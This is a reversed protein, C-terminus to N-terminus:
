KQWTKKLKEVIDNFEEDSYFALTIKGKGMNYDIGVKTGVLRQLELAAAEALRVKTKEKSDLNDISENPEKQMGQLIKELARVSLKNALVKKALQHQTKPDSVSLLVKAHGVTIEQQSLMERVSSPLSLLRMSNAVTAREKSVKEAIQQQTLKFEDALRQYAEAEDIPNLDERQINEIIALELSDQDNVSKILVPVEHLGAIQAARWRREGSIIELTGNLHRRAIIPQLIGKDKISAALEALTDKNFKQRPQYENPNLKDVAIKWVRAEPPVSAAAPGSVTPNISTSSVQPALPNVTTSNAAAGATIQINPKQEVITINPKQQQTLSQPPQQKEVVVDTTSTLSNGLLSNLGRGLRGKKNQTDQSKDSMQKVM